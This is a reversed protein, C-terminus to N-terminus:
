TREGYPCLKGVKDYGKTEGQKYSCQSSNKYERKKEKEDGKRKNLCGLVNEVENM